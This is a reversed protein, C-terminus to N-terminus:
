CKFTNKHKFNLDLNQLTVLFLTREDCELKNSDGFEFHDLNSANEAFKHM